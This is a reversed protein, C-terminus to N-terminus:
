ELAALVKRRLFEDAEGLTHRRESHGVLVYKCGVDALMLPSVEGTFAGEMAPYVNQAGLAVRSGRVVEGVVHLYPFPPCVVVEIREEAGLEGVVGAALDRASAATAYMKWNGAIIKKRM